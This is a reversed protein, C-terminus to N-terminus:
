QLDIIEQFYLRCKLSKIKLMKSHILSNRAVVRILIEQSKGPLRDTAALLASWGAERLQRRTGGPRSAQRKALRRHRNTTELDMSDDVDSKLQVNSANKATKATLTCGKRCTLFLQPSKGAQPPWKPIISMKLQYFWM